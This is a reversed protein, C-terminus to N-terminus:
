PRRTQSSRGSGWCAGHPCTLVRGQAGPAQTPHPGPLRGRLLVSACPERAAVVGTLTWRPLSGSSSPPTWVSRLSVAVRSVASHWRGPSPLPPDKGHPVRAPSSRGWTVSPARRRAACARAPGPSVPAPRSFPSSPARRSQAASWRVRPTLVAAPAPLVFAECPRLSGVRPASPSWGTRWLVSSRM